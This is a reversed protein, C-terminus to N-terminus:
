SVEYVLHLTNMVRGMDNGLPVNYVPDVSSGSSGSQGCGSALENLLSYVPDNGLLPHVRGKSEIM